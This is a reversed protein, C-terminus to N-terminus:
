GFLMRRWITVPDFARRHDNLGAKLKVRDSIQLNEGTYEKPLNMIDDPLGNVVRGFHPNDPLMVANIKEIFQGQVGDYTLETAPEGKENVANATRRSWGVFSDHFIGDWGFRQVSRKVMGPYTEWLKDCSPHYWDGWTYRMRKRFKPYRLM